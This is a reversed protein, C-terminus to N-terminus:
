EKVREVYEALTTAEEESHTSAFSSIQLLTEQNDTDSLLGEKLVKGFQSWFKQYDEPREAQLEKITSLVRKTLRRRIAKIQRDQQLIERSVNLSMDQADVVGKLFRLYRPMLEDCDDMIFVRKVYLQVGIKRDRDFLDFPASSPIFLLAQYEFTGEAKM